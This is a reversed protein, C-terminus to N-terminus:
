IFLPCLCQALWEKMKGVYTRLMTRKSMTKSNLCIHKLLYHLRQRGKRLVQPQRATHDFSGVWAHLDESHNSYISPKLAMCDINDQLQAGDTTKNSDEFFAFMPTHVM